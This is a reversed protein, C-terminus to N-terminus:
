VEAQLIQHDPRHEPPRRLMFLARARKGRKMYGVRGCLPSSDGSRKQTVDLFSSLQIVHVDYSPSELM